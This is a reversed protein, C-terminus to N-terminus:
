LMHTIYESASIGIVESNHESKSFLSWKLSLVM